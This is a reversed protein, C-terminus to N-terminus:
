GASLESNGQARICDQYYYLPKVGLRDRAIFLKKEQSDWLAFAFMGNFRALCEKGWQRYANLIVETDSRSKFTHGLKELDSRIEQFNYIEGNYTVWLVKDSTTMPQAAAETLDIIKLRTHALGCHNDIFVGSDDPGRHALLTNMRLLDQRHVPLGSFHYAGAIGCM